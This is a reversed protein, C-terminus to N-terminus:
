ADALLQQGYVGLADLTAAGKPSASPRLAEVTEQWAAHHQLRSQCHERWTTHEEPPLTEPFNRARYRFLLEELRGDEFHFRAASLAEPALARARNLQRRDANGVFGGYLDEDVDVANDSANRFVDQWVATMKQMAPAADTARKAHKFARDVDVDWRAAMASTLTRLDRIVIPARNLHISKIPLRDVGEPLDDAKTFLRMRIAEADLSLLATPDASLDWAIIENKNTPHQALPLMLAM